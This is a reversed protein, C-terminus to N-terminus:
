SEAQVAIALKEKSRPGFIGRGMEAGAEEAMRDQRAHLYGM